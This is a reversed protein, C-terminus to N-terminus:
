LAAAAVYGKPLVDHFEGDMWVTPAKPDTEKAFGLEHKFFLVAKDLGAATRVHPAWNLVEGARTILPKRQKPDDQTAPLHKITM